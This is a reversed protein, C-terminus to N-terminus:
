CREGVEDDLASVTYGLSGSDASGSDTRLTLVFVMGSHALRDTM